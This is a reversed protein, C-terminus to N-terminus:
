TCASSALAALFWFRVFEGREAVPHLCAVVLLGVNAVGGGSEPHIRDDPGLVRAQCQERCDAHGRSEVIPLRELRTNQLHSRAMGALGNGRFGKSFRGPPFRKQSKKKTDPVREGITQSKLGKGVPLQSEYRDM